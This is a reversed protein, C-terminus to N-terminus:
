ALPLESESAFIPDNTYIPLRQSNMKRLIELDATTRSRPHGFRNYSHGAKTLSFGSMIISPSGLYVCLIALFVGNSPHRNSSSQFGTVEKIIKDRESRRLMLLSEHRYGLRAVQQEVIDRRGSGGVVILSRTELKALAAQAALNAPKDGLVGAGFLTLDPSGLNWGAAAVQSGNVTVFTIESRPLVPPTSNPGSGLVFTPMTLAQLNPMRIGFFPRLLSLLM